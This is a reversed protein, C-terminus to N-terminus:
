SRNYRLLNYEISPKDILTDWLIDAPDTAGLFEQFNAPLNPQLCNCPVLLKTLGGRQEPRVVQRIKAYM